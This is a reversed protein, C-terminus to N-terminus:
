SGTMEELSVRDEVDRGAEGPSGALDLHALGTTSAALVPVTDPNSAPFPALQVRILTAKKPTKPKKKHTHTTHHPIPNVCRVGRFKVFVIREIALITEM